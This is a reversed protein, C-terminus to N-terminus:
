VWTLVDGDHTVVASTFTGEDAQNRTDLLGGAAIDQHVALGNCKVRGEIGPLLPNLGDELVQREGFIQIHGGVDEHPSLDRAQIQPGQGYQIM